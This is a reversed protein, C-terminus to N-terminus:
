RETRKLCQVNSLVPKALMKLHFGTAWLSISGGPASLELEWLWQLTGNPTQRSERRHLEAIHCELPLGSWQLAVDVGDVNAFRLEAPCIWFAYNSAEQTPEVWEVIYDLDLAISFDQPSWRIAWIRCDHFGLREFDAESYCDRVTPIDTAAM